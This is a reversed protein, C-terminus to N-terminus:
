LMTMSSAWYGGEGRGSARFSFCALCMPAAPVAELRSQPIGEVLLM